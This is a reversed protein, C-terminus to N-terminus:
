HKNQGTLVLALAACDHAHKWAFVFNYYFAHIHDGPMDPLPLAGALRAQYL